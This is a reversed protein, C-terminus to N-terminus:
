KTISEVELVCILSQNILFIIKNYVKTYKKRKGIM